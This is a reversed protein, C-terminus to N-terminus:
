EEVLRLRDVAGAEIHAWIANVLDVIYMCSARDEINGSSMPAKVAQMILTSGDNDCENPGVGAELLLRLSERTRQLKWAPRRIGGQLLYAAVSVERKDRAHVDAGADILMQMLRTEWPRGQALEALPTEGYTDRQHVLESRRSLLAALIAEVNAREVATEEYPM